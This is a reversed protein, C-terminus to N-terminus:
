PTAREAAAGPAVAAGAAEPTQGTAEPRTVRPRQGAEGPRLDSGPLTQAEVAAAPDRVADPVVEPRTVGPQVPAATSAAADAGLGLSGAQTGTIDPVASGANFRRDRQEEPTLEV